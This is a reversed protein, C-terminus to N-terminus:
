DAVGPSGGLRMGSTTYAMYDWISIGNNLGRFGSPGNMSREDRVFDRVREVFQRNSIGVEKFPLSTDTLSLLIAVYGAVLPAALFLNVM